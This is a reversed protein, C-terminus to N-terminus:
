QLRCIIQLVVAVVAHEYGPIESFVVLVLILLLRGRTYTRLVLISKYLTCGVGYHVHCVYEHKMYSQVPIVNLNIIVRNPWECDLM